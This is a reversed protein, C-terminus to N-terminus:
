SRAVPDHARHHARGPRVAHQVVSHRRVPLTGASHRHDAHLPRLRLPARDRQLGHELERHERRAQEIRQLAHRAARMRRYFLRGSWDRAAQTTSAAACSSAERPARSLSVDFAARATTLTKPAPSFAIHTVREIKDLGLYCLKVSHDSELARMRVRRPSRPTRRAGRVSGRFGLRLSLDLRLTLPRDGFNRVVLREYCAGNWIFKMRNLHINERRLAIKGDELLDPNSLDAIFVANDDQTVSSLLLPRAEELLLQLQSLMRTDRHYLGEPNGPEGGIDGRHDFM